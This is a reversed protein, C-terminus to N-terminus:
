PQLPPRRHMRAWRESARGAGGAQDHNENQGSAGRRHAHAAQVGLLGVALERLAHEGALGQARGGQLDQVPRTQGLDVPVFRGNGDSGKMAPRPDDVPRVPEERQRLEGVELGHAAAVAGMVQGGGDVSVGKEERAVGSADRPREVRPQPGGDVEVVLPDGLPEGVPFCMEHFELRAAVRQGESLEDHADVGGLVAPPRKAHHIEHGRIVEGHTAEVVVIAPRSDPRGQDDGQLVDLALLFRGVGHDGRREFHRGRGEQLEVVDLRPKRAAPDLPREGQERGLLARRDRDAAALDRQLKPGGRRQGVGQLSGLDVRQLELGQKGPVEGQQLFRGPELVVHKEHPRVAGAPDREHQHM